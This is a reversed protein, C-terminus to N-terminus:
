LKTLVFSIFYMYTINFTTINPFLPLIASFDVRAPIQRIHLTHVFASAFEISELLRKWNTGDNSPFYSEILEQIHRELYLRKWSSGHMEIECNQWRECSMREWLKECEVHKAARNIPLTNLQILNVVNEIYQIPLADLVPNEKTKFFFM